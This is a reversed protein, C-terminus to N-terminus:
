KIRYYYNKGDITVKDIEGKSVLKSLVLYLSPETNLPYDYKFKLMFEKILHDLINVTIGGSGIVTYYVLKSFQEHNLQRYSNSPSVEQIGSHGHEISTSPSDQLLEPRHIPTSKPLSLRRLGKSKFSKATIM